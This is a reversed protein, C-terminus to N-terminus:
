APAPDRTLIRHVTEADERVEDRVRPFIGV